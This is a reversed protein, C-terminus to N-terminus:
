KKTKKVPKPVPTFDTFKASSKLLPLPRLVLDDTGRGYIDVKKKARLFKEFQEDFPEKANATFNVRFCTRCVNRDIGEEEHEWLEKSPNHCIDCTGVIEEFSNHVVSDQTASSFNDLKESEVEKKLEQFKQEKDSQQAFEEQNSLLHDPTYRGLRKDHRGLIEVEQDKYQGFKAMFDRQKLQIM